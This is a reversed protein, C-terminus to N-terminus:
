KRNKHISKFKNIDLKLNGMRKFNAQPKKIQPLPILKLNKNLKLESKEERSGSEEDSVEDIEEIPKILDILKRTHKSATSLWRSYNEVNKSLFNHKSYLKNTVASGKTSNLNYRQWLNLSKNSPVSVPVKNNKNYKRRGWLNPNYKYKGCDIACHGFEECLYCKIGLISVGYKVLNRGLATIKEKDKPIANLIENFDYKRFKLIECFDYSKVSAKRKGGGFFSVEGFYHFKGLVKFMTRTTFHFVEAHGGAVFYLDSGTVNQNIILDNPAFLELKLKYSIARLCQCSITEFQPVKILYHGQLNTYIEEKMPCSLLNLVDQERLLNETHVQKLNRIYNHVKLKLPEPVNYNKLYKKLRRQVDQFYSDVQSSKELSSQVGGVCYGLFASALSMIFISTILELNSKPNFSGYGVSTIMETMRLLLKLYRSKNEFQVPYFNYYEPGEALSKCYLINGSCTLIHLFLLAAYLYSFISTLSYIISYAFIQQFNFVTERYKFLRLLKLLLFYRLLDSKSQPSNTPGQKYYGYPIFLEFPVSTLLDPLFWTRLYYRAIQKRESILMGQQFFSTNFSLFVDFFSLLSFFLIINLPLDVYFSISYPITFSLFVSFSLMILDWVAKFISDGDVILQSMITVRSGQLENGPFFTHKIDRRLLNENIRKLSHLFITSRNLFQENAKNKVWKRTKVM